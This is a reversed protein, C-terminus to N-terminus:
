LSPGKYKKKTGIGVQEESTQKLMLNESFCHDEQITVGTIRNGDSGRNDKASRDCTYDFSCKTHM